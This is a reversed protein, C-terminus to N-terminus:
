IVFTRKFHLLTKQTQRQLCANIYVDRVSANHSVNLLTWHDIPRKFLRKNRSCLTSCTYPANIFAETEAVCCIHRVKFISFSDFPLNSNGHKTVTNFMDRSYFNVRKLWHWHLLRFQIDWPLIFGELEMLICDIYDLKESIFKGFKAFKAM